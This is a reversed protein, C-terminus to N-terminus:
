IMFPVKLKEFNMFTVQLICRFMPPIYDTPRIDFVPVSIKFRPFAEVTRRVFCVDAVRALVVHM